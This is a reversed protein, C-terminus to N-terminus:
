DVVRELDLRSLERVRRGYTTTNDKLTPLRLDMKQYDKGVILGMDTLYTDATATVAIRAAYPYFDFLGELEEAATARSRPVFFTVGMWWEERTEPFIANPLGALLHEALKHLKPWSPRYGIIITHPDSYARGYAIPAGRKSFLARQWHYYGFDELDQLTTPVEGRYAISNRKPEPGFLLGGRRSYFLEGARWMGESHDQALEQIPHILIRTERRFLSYRKLIEVTEDFDETDYVKARNGIHDKFRAALDRRKEIDPDNLGILM